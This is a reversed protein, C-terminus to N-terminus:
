NILKISAISAVLFVTELVAEVWPYKKERLVVPEPVEQPPM